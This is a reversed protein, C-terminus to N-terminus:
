EGEPQGAAPEDKPPILGLAEAKKQAEARETQITQLLTNQLDRLAGRVLLVESTLDAEKQRWDDFYAVMQQVQPSMKAVEYVADDIAITLTPQVPTM